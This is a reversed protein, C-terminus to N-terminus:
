VHARGIEYLGAIEPAVISTGGAPYVWSQDIVVQPTNLGEANLALDPLSRSNAGCAPRSQYGPSAYYASCGGGSGGDNNSCGDSGGTWGTESVFGDDGPTLVLTTGGAATVDPDSAPYSVSLHDACDTTAGGDGSAAVLSWGQGVMQNFIAHFSDMASPPNGYIEAAGWSMSLVRAHGDTSIRNLVDMLTSVEGNTGEYVYIEATDASTDFSNAMATSWDVDVTTEESCCQPTGDVFYRQVNSAMNDVVFRQLDSDLFDGWIAIAISAEPPSNNPNNLPNCCHQLNYLGFGTYNRYTMSGYNYAGAAWLDSPWYPNEYNDPRKARDSTAARPKKSADSMLHSGVTYPPGPSYDPGTFDQSDKSFTHEVEINNLGLVAHVIGALTAPLSPDGDNSFHQKGGVEYRNITVNLAKEIVAVPAEVDVLLRNPYHQTITLGQSSAWDVVAQEDRASPAFRQDWEQESLYKHFLPSDRDQLQNLFQEEEAMHPPKLAFVLRLKQTPDYHAILKATGNQVALPTQTIQVQQAAGQNPWAIAILLLLSLVAPWTKSRPQSAQAVPRPTDQSKRFALCCISLHAWRDTQIPSPSGDKRYM